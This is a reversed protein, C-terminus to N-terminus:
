KTLQKLIEYIQSYNLEKKEEIIKLCKENMKM